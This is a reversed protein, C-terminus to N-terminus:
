LSDDAKFGTELQRCSQCSYFLQRCSQCSNWTTVLNSLQYFKDGAKVALVVDVDVKFWCCHIWWHEILIRTLLSPDFWELKLLSTLWDTVSMPLSHDSRPGIFITSVPCRSISVTGPSTVSSQREGFSKEKKLPRDQLSRFILLFLIFAKKFRNQHSLQLSHEWRQNRTRGKSRDTRLSIKLESMILNWAARVPCLPLCIQYLACSALTSVDIRFSETVNQYKDYKVSHM